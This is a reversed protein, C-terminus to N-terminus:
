NYMENGGKNHVKEAEKLLKKLGKLDVEELNKFRICSKGINVKGLDKVHKEALYQGDKAVCAYVSIHAKQSALGVVFWDGECGSKTKYKIKGFGIMDSVICPKLTSLADKMMKFLKKMDSKRPEDIMNLYETPTKAGKPKMM